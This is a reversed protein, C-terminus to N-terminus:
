SATQSDPGYRFNPLKRGSILENSPAYGYSHVSFSSVDPGFLRIQLQSM